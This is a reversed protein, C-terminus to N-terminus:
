TCKLSRLSRVGPFTTVCKHRFLCFFKLPARPLALKIDISADVITELLKSVASLDVEEALM